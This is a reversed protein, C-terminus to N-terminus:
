QVGDTVTYNPHRVIRDVQVSQATADNRLNSGLQVTHAGPLGAVSVGSSGWKFCHAATLLWHESVLVAGCRFEGHYYLGAVWPWAGEPALNGGVIFAFTESHASQSVLGCNLESCTVKVATTCNTVDDLNGLAFSLQADAIRKFASQDSIEVSGTSVPAGKGLLRCAEDSNHPQWMDYCVPLSTNTTVDRAYLIGTHNSTTVLSVSFLGSMTSTNKMVAKKM